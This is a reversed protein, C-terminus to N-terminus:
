FENGREDVTEAGYVVGKDKYKRLVFHTATSIVDDITALKQAVFYAVEKMTKGEIIVSLDYGGSMLYLSKVEPYNYIKEAVVDFGRDRQPAVKLEIVASVYERDTQDWDILAKYAVITGNNEYEEIAKKIDGTDKETMVAIQEPTLRADEELMRLIEKM